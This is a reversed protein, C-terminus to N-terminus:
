MGLFPLHLLIIRDYGQALFLSNPSKTKWMTQRKSQDALFLSFYSGQLGLSPFIGFLVWAGHVNVGGVQASKGLSEM